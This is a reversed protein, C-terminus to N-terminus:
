IDDFDDEVNEDGEEDTWGDIMPRFIDLIPERTRQGVVVPMSKNEVLERFKARSREIFEDADEDEYFTWSDLCDQIYNQEAEEYTEGPGLRYGNEAPEETRQGVVVPIANQAQENDENRAEADLDLFEVKKSERSFVRLKVLGDQMLVDFSSIIKRQKLDAGKKLLKKKLGMFRTPVMRSVRVSRNNMRRLSKKLQILNVAADQSSMFTLRLTGGSTLYFKHVKYMFDELRIKALMAKARNYFDLDSHEPDMTLGTIMLTKMWYDDKEYRHRKLLHDLNEKESLTLGTSRSELQQVKEHVIDLEGIKTNLQDYNLQLRDFKDQADSLVRDCTTVTRNIIEYVKKMQEGVRTSCESTLLDKLSKIKDEVQTLQDVVSLESRRRQRPPPSVVVPNENDLSTVTILSLTPDEEMPRKVGTTARSRSAGSTSAVESGNQNESVDEKSKLWSTLKNAKSKKKRKGSM